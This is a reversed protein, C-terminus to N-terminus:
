PKRFLRTFVYDASCLLAVLGGAVVMLIKGFLLGAAFLALGALAALTGGKKLTEYVFDLELLRHM